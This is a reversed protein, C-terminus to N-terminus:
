ESDSLKIVTDERAAIEQVNLWEGVGGVGLHGTSYPGSNTAEVRPVRQIYM